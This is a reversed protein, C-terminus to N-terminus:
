RLPNDHRAAKEFFRESATKLYTRIPELQFDVHLVEEYVVTSRSDQLFQIPNRLSNIYKRTGHAFVVSTYAM